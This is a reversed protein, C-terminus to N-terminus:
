VGGGSMALFWTFGLLIAAMWATLLGVTARSRRIVFLVAAPLVVGSILFGLSGYRYWLEQERSSYPGQAMSATFFGIIVINVILITWSCGSMKSRDQEIPNQPEMRTVHGPKRVDAVPRSRVHAQRTLALTRVDRIENSRRCDIMLAITRLVGNM